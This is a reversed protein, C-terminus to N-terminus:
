EQTQFTHALAKWSEDTGAYDIWVTGAKTIGVLGAQPHAALSWDAAAQREAYRKGARTRRVETILNM